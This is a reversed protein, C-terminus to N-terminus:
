WQMMRKKAKVDPHEEMVRRIVRFMNHMPERQNERRHATIMILRSDKFWELESHMYDKRVTTKLADIATNGFISAAKM